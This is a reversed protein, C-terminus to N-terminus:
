ARALPQNADAPQASAHNVFLLYQGPSREIAINDLKSEPDLKTDILKRGDDLAVMLFRGNPEFFAAIEDGVLAPKVGRDFTGLM